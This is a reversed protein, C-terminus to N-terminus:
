AAEAEDAKFSFSPKGCSVTRAPLLAKQVAPPAAGYKREDVKLEVKAYHRADDPKMKDLAARLAKQDWEVKKPYTVKLEVSNSAMINVTGTDRGSAVLATKAKEGFRRVLIADFIERRRKLADKEADLVTELTQLDPVTLLEALEAVPRNLTTIDM